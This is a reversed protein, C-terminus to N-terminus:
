NQSNLNRSLHLRIAAMKFRIIICNQFNEGYLSQYPVSVHHTQRRYIEVTKLLSNESDFCM